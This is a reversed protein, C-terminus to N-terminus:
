GWVVRTAGSVEEYKEEALDRKTYVVVKERGKGKGKYGGGDTLSKPGWSQELATDFATNISTLPLRSDRAEIVLDIDELLAPLDRLSRAMHGIFWSPTHSPFPFRLRSQFNMHFFANDLSAHELSAEAHLLLLHPTQKTSSSYIKRKM